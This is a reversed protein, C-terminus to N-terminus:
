WTTFHQKNRQQKNYYIALFALISCSLMSFQLISHILIQKRRTLSRSYASDDMSFIYIAHFM